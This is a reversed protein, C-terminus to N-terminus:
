KKDNEPSCFSEIARVCLQNRSPSFGSLNKIERIKQDIKEQIEKTVVVSFKVTESKQKASKPM